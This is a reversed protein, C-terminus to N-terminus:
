KVSFAIVRTERIIKETVTDFVDVEFPRDVMNGALDAINTGVRLGYSGAKWPTAPVFTWRTEDRDTRVTGEVVNGAADTVELHRLMLAHDLPEPFDVQLTNVTGAAPAAIKWSKLDLPRRDAPGVTFSKRMETKLQKGQADLWERDIVLTYKHGAVIPPGMEVNPLVDRKIRGPDFFLTLRQAPLDWLEQELELFPMKVPNGSEDLLHIRRYAEGRSMPASFHLYFKLQNEPLASASPYIHEVSTTPTLDPKATEFFETIPQRGPVALVVRYRVGAQLGFRPTFILDNGEMTRRGSVPPVDTVTSAVYVNLVDSWADQLKAADALGSVRVVSGDYRIAVINQPVVLLNFCVILIAIM